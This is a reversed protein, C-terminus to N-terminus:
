HTSKQFCIVYRVALSPFRHLLADVFKILMSNYPIKLGYSKKMIFHYHKALERMAKFTCTHIHGVPYRAISYYKHVGVLYKKSVEIHRPQFGFLLSFRSDWSSLNTLSLVLFGGPKLVRYTESFFNDWFVMHDLVGFSIALDFHDNPFPLKDKELNVKSTKVYKKAKELRSDDIDIGWAEEFNLLNKFMFAVFGYGCGLDIMANKHKLQQELFEFLLKFKKSNNRMLNFTVSSNIEEPTLERQLKSYLHTFENLNLKKRSNKM